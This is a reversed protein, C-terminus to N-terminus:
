RKCEAMRFDLRFLTLPFAFCLFLIRVMGMSHLDYCSDAGVRQRMNDSVCEFMGMSREQRGQRLNGNRDMHRNSSRQSMIGGRRDPNDGSMMDDFGGMGMSLQSFMDSFPDGSGSRGSSGMSMLQQQSRAQPQQPQAPQQVFPNGNDRRAPTRGNSSAASPSSAHQQTFDHAAATTDPGAVMADFLAFPDSNGSMLANPSGFFSDATSGSNNSNGFFSGSGGFIEDFM